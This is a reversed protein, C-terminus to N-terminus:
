NTVNVLHNDNEPTTNSLITWLINEYSFVNHFATRINFSNGIRKLRESLAQIYPITVTSVVSQYM